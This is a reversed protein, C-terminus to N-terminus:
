LYLYFVQINNTFFNNPGREREREKEEEMFTAIILFKRFCKPVNKQECVRKLVYLIDVWQYCFCLCAADM